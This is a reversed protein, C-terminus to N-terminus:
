AGSTGLQTRRLRFVERLGRGIADGVSEAQPRSSYIDWVIQAESETLDELIQQLREKSSV